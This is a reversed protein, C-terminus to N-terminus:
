WHGGAALSVETQTGSAELRVGGPSTWWLTAAGALAVGAIVLAVSAGNLEAIARNRLSDGRGTCVRAGCESASDSYAAKSLVGLTASSTLGVLSVGFVTVAAIRKASMPHSHSGLPPGVPPAKTSPTAPLPELKPIVVVTTHEGDTDFRSSWRQRGAASARIEHWGLTVPPSEGWLTRPFVMDDLELALGEFDVEKSLSIIVRPGSRELAAAGAEAMAAWANKGSERAARASEKYAIWAPATRGLKDYCFAVNAMTGPAPELRQSELFLEVAEAYRGDHFLLRGERFRLQGLASRQANGQAHAPAPVTLALSAICVACKLNM